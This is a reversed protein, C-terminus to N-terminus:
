YNTIEFYQLTISDEMLIQLAKCKKEGLYGGKIFMEVVVLADV